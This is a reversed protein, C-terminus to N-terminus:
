IIVSVFEAFKAKSLVKAKLKSNYFVSQQLTTVMNIHM